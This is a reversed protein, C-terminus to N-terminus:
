EATSTVFSPPKNEALFGSHTCSYVQSWLRAVVAWSSADSRGGSAEIGADHYSLLLLPAFPLVYSALIGDAFTAAATAM